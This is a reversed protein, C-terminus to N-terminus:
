ESAFNSRPLKRLGERVEKEWDLLTTSEVHFRCAVKKLALAKPGRVKWVDRSKISRLRPLNGWRPKRRTEFAAYRAWRRHLACVAYFREVKLGDSFIRIAGYDWCRGTAIALDLELHTTPRRPLPIPRGPPIRHTQRWAVYERAFDPVGFRRILDALYGPSAHRREKERVSLINRWEPYRREYARRQRERQAPSKDPWDSAAAPTM